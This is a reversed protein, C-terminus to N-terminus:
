RCALISHPLTWARTLGDLVTFPISTAMLLDSLALNFIFINRATRMEKSRVVAIIVITNGCIAVTLMITYAAIISSFAPDHLVRNDTNFLEMVFQYDLEGMTKNNESSMM